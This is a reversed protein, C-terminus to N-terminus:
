FAVGIKFGFAATVTEPRQILFTNVGDSVRQTNSAGFYDSDFYTELVFDRGKGVAFHNTFSIFASVEKGPELDFDETFGTESKAM